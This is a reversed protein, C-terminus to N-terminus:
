DADLLKKVRADFLRGGQRRFHITGGLVTASRARHTAEAIGIHERLKGDRTEVYWKGAREYRVVEFSSCEAHVTRDSM